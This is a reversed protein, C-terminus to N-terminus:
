LLIAHGACRLEAVTLSCGTPGDCTQCRIVGPESVRDCRANQLQHWRRCSEVDRFRAEVVCRSELPGKLEPRYCVEAAVPTRGCGSALAVLCAALTAARFGAGVPRCDVLGSTEKLPVPLVSVWEAYAGARGGFGRVM